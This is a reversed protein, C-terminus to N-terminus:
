NKKDGAGISDNTIFSPGKGLVSVKNKRNETFNNDVGNVKEM